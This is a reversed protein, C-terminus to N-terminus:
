YACVYRLPGLTLPCVNVGHPCARLVTGYTFYTLVYELIRLVHQCTNLGSPCAAIMRECGCYVHVHRLLRLVILCANLSDASTRPVTQHILYALVYESLELSFTRSTSVLLRRVVMATIWEFPLHAPTSLSIYKCTLRQLVDGEFASMLVEQVEMPKAARIFLASARNFLLYDEMMYTLKVINVIGMGYDRLKSGQFASDVLLDSMQARFWGRIAERCFYKDCLRVIKYWLKYNAVSEKAQPDSHLIQCLWKMALPDDEPFPITPPDQTNFNLQGEAFRSDLMAAFCPSADTLAKKSVRLRINTFKQPYVFNCGYRCDCSDCESCSCMTEFSAISATPSPPPENAADTTDTGVDLILDGMEDVIVLDPAPELAMKLYIFPYFIM